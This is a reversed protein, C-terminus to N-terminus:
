EPRFRLIVSGEVTLALDQFTEGTERLTYRPELPLDILAGAPRAVIPPRGHIRLRGEGGLVVRVSTIPAASRLLVDVAGPRLRAEDERVTVPGSVFAMVGPGAEIGDGFRPATAATPWRELVLGAALVAAVV